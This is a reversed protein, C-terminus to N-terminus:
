GKLIRDGSLGLGAISKDKEKQQLYGIAMLFIGVTVFSDAVNFVPWRLTGFGVDFFDVVAGLYLRDIINGLAGGVVMSLGLRLFRCERPTTYFLWGVFLLAAFSILTHIFSSGLDFGFAAGPNHIYTLRFFDGLVPISEKRIMSKQVVIKSSQDFILCLPVAWLVKM